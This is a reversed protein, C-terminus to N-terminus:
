GDGFFAPEIHLCSRRGAAIAVLVDQIADLPVDGRGIERVVEEKLPLEGVTGLRALVGQEDDVHVRWSDHVPPGGGIGVGVGM